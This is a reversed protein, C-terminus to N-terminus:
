PVATSSPADAGKREVYEAIARISGLNHPTTETDGVTIGFHEELFEILELIGTSDVVGSEMLSTTDDPLRDADGFLYNRVVFERLDETITSM